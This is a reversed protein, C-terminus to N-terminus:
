SRNKQQKRGRRRLTVLHYEKDQRVSAVTVRQPSCFALEGGPLALMSNKNACVAIPLGFEFAKARASVGVNCDLIPDCVAVIVDAGCVALSRVCESSFVDDGVIVGIRGAHTQYVHLGGGGVYREGDVIANMDTIGLLRGNECVAASHRLSGYSDTDVGAIVTSKLCKSLNTLTRFFTTLGKIESNYSIPEKYYFPFVVVDCGEVEDPSVAYDCETVLAIRM